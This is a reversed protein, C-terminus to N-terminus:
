IESPPQYLYLYVKESITAANSRKRVSLRAALNTSVFLHADRTPSCFAYAEAAITDKSVLM